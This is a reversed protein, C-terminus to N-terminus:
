AAADRRAKRWREVSKPSVAAALALAKISATALSPNEEIAADIKGDASTERAAQAPPRSPTTKRTTAPRKSPATRVATAAGPAATASPGPPVTVPAPSPVTVGADDDAGTATVTPAADDDHTAVDRMSRVLGMAMEVSGIFAGAPWASLTAMIVIHAVPPVLSSPLGHTVNAGITAVIGLWLMFTALRTKGVLKHRAAYLKVLSAEAIVGDISLPLLRAQVGTEAGSGWQGTALGYIHSYSVIAADVAVLAVTAAMAWTIVTDGGPWRPSPWRRREPPAPSTTVPAEDRPPWPSSPGRRELLMPLPGSIASRPHHGNVPYETVRDGTMSMLYDELENNM